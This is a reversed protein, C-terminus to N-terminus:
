RQITGLEHYQQGTELTVVRERVREAPTGWGEFITVYVKTRASTRNRDSAFYHARIAYRGKPARPLVYMEPGYGQTVDQTLAGGIATQRHEYYCEEGSPETVHLDVDTNDTNWTITVVVDASKMGIAAALTELRSRAYDKLTPAANGGQVQRLFRLYDLEVIKRLDGFRPDWQGLLPIEFYALALEHRGMAALAQAMARYTQPEHPRADAVRRLLHFAQPHLGLEMASFAVDRALVADGPSQEVLSSLAKLADAPSQKARRAAADATLTDYDLDHKALLPVLAPSLRARERLKTALPTTPVAFAAAPLQGLAAKYSAPIQLRIDPSKELRGLLALFSAKPDGLTAYAAGLVKAYLEGAPTAKVVFADDDPKIGFRAYDEETELMLLSCTRGTVRFHTAYARAEAETGAELEELHATAIQGYARAALPSPLPAGLPTKVAQRKGDQEVTLVLAAGQAIAGRGAVQVTQGPFLVSPTGAILVDSGGTVEVGVLRWPRARHATAARAIESEGTVSFVAGGTQRTLHALAATDTGALGTQYAFLPGLGDLMRGLAHLNAEGWTSAGDSLLFLDPLGGNPRPRAADSAGNVTLRVAPAIAGLAAGLDTAGELALGGAFALLAEVEAPTNDVFGPRYWHADVSFFLVNFQKLSGRNGDLIGRLLKLWINFRDPNASLSTDVLFVARDSTQADAAPLQPSVRAAFFPGTKPDTAVLVPAGPSALRIRITREKRGEFHFLKRGAVARPAVEPSATAAHAAAVSVDVVAAPAQEPLELRYELDGGIPTLDVDYGVVIRHLKHPALPFVRASFVGAGAWEVIAPDVRRRVTAGYAIQAKERPVMRAEKPALWETKRQQMLADPDASAGGPDRDTAITLAPKPESAAYRTEGFAFFYPSAEEPLRLQFTGELQHDRENAYLYDIVVRARFGDIMVRTQMGRLALEDRDGVMVRSSNPVIQSRKWTQPEGDKGGGPKGGQSDSDKKGMKGEELAMATGAGGEEAKDPEPAMEQAPPAANTRVSLDMAAGSDADRKKSCSILSAGIVLLLLKARM